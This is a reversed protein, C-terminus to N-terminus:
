YQATSSCEGLGRGTVWRTEYPIVVSRRYGRGGTNSHTIPYTGGLELRKTYPGSYITLQPLSLAMCTITEPVLYYVFLCICTKGM